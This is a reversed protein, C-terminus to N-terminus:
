GSPNNPLNESHWNQSRHYGGQFLYSRQFFPPQALCGPSPAITIKDPWTYSSAFGSLRMWVRQPLKKVVTLLPRSDPFPFVIKINIVTVKTLKAPLRHM